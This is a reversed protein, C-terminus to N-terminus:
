YHSNLIRPDTTFDFTEKCIRCRYDIRIPKASVGMLSLWFQGWTTYTAVASVMHHKRDHGCRCREEFDKTPPVDVEKIEQENDM